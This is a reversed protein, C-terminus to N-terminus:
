KALGFNDAIHLKFGYFKVDATFQDDDCVSCM